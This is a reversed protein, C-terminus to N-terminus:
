NGEVNKEEMEKKDLFNSNTEENIKRGKSDDKSDLRIEKDQRVFSSPSKFQTKKQNSGKM